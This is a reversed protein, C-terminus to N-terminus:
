VRDARAPTHRQGRLHDVRGSLSPKLPTFYKGLNKVMGDYRHHCSACLEAYDEFRLSYLRGAYRGTKDSLTGRGHILTMETNTRPCGETSCIRTKRKRLRYHMGSYTPVAVTRPPNIVLPDGHHQWRWLHKSCFGHSTCYAECDEVSCIGKSKRAGVLPNGYIKWRQWHTMCMGRGRPERDCGAVICKEPLRVWQRKAVPEGTRHWNRYHRSCWGRALVPKNCDPISCIKM